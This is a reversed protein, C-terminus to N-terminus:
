LCRLTTLVEPFTILLSSRPVPQGSAVLSICFHRTMPFSHSGAGPPPLLLDPRAGEWSSGESLWVGPQGCSLLSVARGAAWGQSIPSSTGCAWAQYFGQMGPCPAPGTGLGQQASSWGPLPGLKTDTAPPRVAAHQELGLTAARVTPVRSNRVPMPAADQAMPSFLGRGGWAGSAEGVGPNCGAQEGGRWLSWGVASRGPAVTGLHTSCAQM